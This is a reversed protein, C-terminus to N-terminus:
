STSCVSPSSPQAASENEKVIRGLASFILHQARTDRVSNELSGASAPSRALLKSCYQLFYHSFLYDQLDKGVIDSRPAIENGPTNVLKLLLVLDVDLPDTKRQM